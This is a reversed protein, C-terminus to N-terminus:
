FTAKVSFGYRRVSPGTIFDIGLGNGVGTGLSNTDFRIDDPFNVAKYWVNFGSATFTLTGFPTKELLKSPVDYGISVENLRITSGDFIWFENAGSIGYVDFGLNTGTIQIDNPSGDTNKVGPLVYTSERDVPNDLDVVGRGTLSAVTTSFIDGGHRYQWDMFFSWGKYKFTSNLATTWDPNPDGIEVLTEDTLYVGDTGVVREGADNRLVTSGLFTGYPRGEVAYNAAYGNVADTLLIQEVGEPLNTVTSEDAYFNGGINWSFAGSVPKLIDIDYDVEIGKVELEGANIRTVVFGTADDLGQDTILDTTQKKFVSVNLNLRNFFRTDMGVEFEEVREPVLNPNGLRGSVSNGSLVGRSGLDFARSSLALTNRTSYTPPFGASSGYGFRMKLYNLGEGSLGDFASTPIFSVSAGPYFLSFNDSELTSTWDNRAAVNLYLFDQYGLVAEGYLGLTNQESQFGINANNFSNVTSHNVFNFHELVGFALQQTSEVGERRFTQRRSTAGLNVGLNFNDNLDKNATLLVTHDWITSTVDQTRYIGTQNGDVGGRNQGYASAETYQDLGLRYTASLWDNLQYVGNINGFVRRVDQTVKSNKVTWRPNQIDNGSRYYISRGDAAEFPLGYLNVSRPTYMLDGFASGGGFGTGSGFSPAIPPSSYRTVAYNLASSFTFKNSLQAKGGVSFNNRILKNGPTVGNDELHTYGINYNVKEASGTVNVSTTSTTGTRFFDDVSDYAQYRYPINAIDEFGAVLTQDAIGLLPGNVLTTGDADFGRFNPNERLDADFGPGWNSFFFGYDQHFGGGYNDQYKPLIASSFFSSQTVSVEFKKNTSGAAGGKTTILIVGNRGAEGYLVTASLGKLVNVSEISNPDLDLFRSSETMNDLFNRGGAPDDGNTGGDFPVGNVIFLPQNSGSISTYGRIIINTGSGTVGNTATINVGAAKGSLIRGLDPQANQEIDEGDVESVSYGLSRAERELGQATVVVEELAQTDEEMQVNIVNGAGVARSTPRQGIYTFVLTQGQSANIAYNGDFDTQTGNTTGDVVINVGPLPLGDADTVTGTITKDQAFSIHVVFALLLTLLGNLKTRM